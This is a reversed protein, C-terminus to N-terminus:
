WYTSYCSLRRPVGYAPVPSLVIARLSLFVIYAIWLSIVVFLISAKRRKSAVHKEILRLPLTQIPPIIAKIRHLKYRPAARRNLHANGANGDADQSGAENLSSLSYSDDDDGLLPDAQDAEKDGPHAFFM